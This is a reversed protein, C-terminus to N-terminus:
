PRQGFHPIMDTTYLGDAYKKILQESIGKSFGTRIKWCLLLGHHHERSVVQLAKNRKIPKTKM